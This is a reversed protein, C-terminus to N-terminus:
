ITRCISYRSIFINSIISPGDKNKKTVMNIFTENLFSYTKGSGFGGVYAKIRAKKKNTLFDWQAPFYNDKHLTLPKSRM